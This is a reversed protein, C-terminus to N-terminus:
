SGSCWFMLQWFGYGYGARYQAGYKVIKSDYMADDDFRDKAVFQVAEREQYIFPKLQKSLDVLGWNATTTLGPLVILDLLGSNVNTAGAANVPAKIIELATARQAPSTVLHTPTIHMLKGQDDKLEQMLAYVAEVNDATLSASSNDYNVQTGSSGETHDTAFFYKGDYCATTTGNQILGLLMEYHHRKYADALDMIRPKMQGIKDDAIWNYPMEIGNAYDVNKIAQGFQRLQSHPRNGLWEAMAPVSGFWNYVEQDGTSPVTMMFQHATDYAANPEELQKRFLAKLGKTVDPLTSTNTAIAGHGM